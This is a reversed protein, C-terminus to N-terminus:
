RIQYRLLIEFSSNEPYLDGIDQAFLIGFSLTKNNLFSNFLVEIMGSYQKVPISYKNNLGLKNLRDKDFYNGYNISYSSLHTFSVKSTLNGTLGLHTAKIRNNEIHIHKRAENSGLVAFPSGIVRGKNTWGSLYIYHNYYDDWGYSNDSVEESGSQNLTYLFEIQIKDILQRNSKNDITIGYLGDKWNLLWRAGSEDEFLHQHYLTYNYNKEDISFGLDWIGIHNGISNITENLPANDDGNQVFFVRLFDTTNSPLDGFEKTSGGFIANHVLGLHLSLANKKLKLKVWKEHLQPRSLYIGKEFFGHSMGVDAFLKFRNYNFILPNINELLVRPIPEANKSKILSGSSLEHDAIGHLYKIKGIKIKYNKLALSINSEIIQFDKDTKVIKGIVQFSSYKYNNYNFNLSANSGQYTGWRNSKMWFPKTANNTIHTQFYLKSSQSLLMYTNQNLIIVCFLILVNKVIKNM